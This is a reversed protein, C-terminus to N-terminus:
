RLTHTSSYTCTLGAALSGVSEHIIPPLRDDTRSMVCTSSGAPVRGSFVQVQRSPYASPLSRRLCWSNPLLLYGRTTSHSPYQLYLRELLDQIVPHLHSGPSTIPPQSEARRNYDLEEWNWGDMWQRLSLVKSPPAGPRRSASPARAESARAFHQTAELIFPHILEFRGAEM